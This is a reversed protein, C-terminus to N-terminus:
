RNSQGGDAAGYTVIPEVWALDSRRQLRKLVSLFEAPTRTNVVYVEPETIKKLGPYLSPDLGNAIAGTKMKFGIEGSVYGQQQMAHNFVVGLQHSSIPASASATTVHHAVVRGTRGARPTARKSPLVELKAGRDMVVMSPDTVPQLTREPPRLEALTTGTALLLILSLILSYM